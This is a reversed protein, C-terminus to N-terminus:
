NTKKWDFFSLNLNNAAIDAMCRLFLERLDAAVCADDELIRCAREIWTKWDITKLIGNDFVLKVFGNQESVKIGDVNFAAQKVRAAQTSVGSRLSGPLIRSLSDRRTGIHFPGM